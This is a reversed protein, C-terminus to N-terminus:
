QCSRMHLALKSQVRAETPSIISLSFGIKQKFCNFACIQKCKFVYTNYHLLVSDQINSILSISWKTEKTYM